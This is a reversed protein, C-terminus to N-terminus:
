NIHDNIQDILENLEFSSLNHTEFFIEINFSPEDSDEGCVGSGVIRVRDVDILNFLIAELENIRDEVNQDAVDQWSTVSFKQPNSILPLKLIKTQM